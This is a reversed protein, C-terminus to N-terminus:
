PAILGKSSIYIYIHIYVWTGDKLNVSEKTKPLDVTTNHVRTIAWSWSSESRFLCSLQRQCWSLCGKEFVIDEGRALLRHGLIRGEANNPQLHLERRLLSRRRRGSCLSPSALGLYTDQVLIVTAAPFRECHAAISKPHPVTSPKQLANPNFM